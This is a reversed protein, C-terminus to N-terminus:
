LQYETSFVEISTRTLNSFIFFHIIWVCTENSKCVFVLDCM